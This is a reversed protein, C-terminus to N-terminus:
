HINSKGVWIKVIKNDTPLLITQLDKATRTGQCGGNIFTANEVQFILDGGKKSISVKLKEHPYYYSSSTLQKNGRSVIVTRDDSEITEHNMVIEGVRFSRECFDNEM